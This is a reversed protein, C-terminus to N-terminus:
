MNLYKKVESLKSAGTSIIINKYLNNMQSLLETNTIEMSAVKITKLKLLKLFDLYKKNFVSTLFTIKKKKVINTFNM